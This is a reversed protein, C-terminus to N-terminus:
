VANRSKKPDHNPKRLHHYNPLVKRLFDIQLTQSAHKDIAERQMCERGYIVTNEPLQQKCQLRVGAGVICGSSVSVEPSVYSKCEFVNKDGIRNAEVTCGVEFVNNAGITLAPAPDGTVASSKDGEPLRYAITAYEEVICNEGLIIPGAEAIISASPHIVCGPSITIDGRLTSDECVISKTMIKVGSDIDIPPM